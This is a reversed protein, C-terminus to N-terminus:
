YKVTLLCEFKMKEKYVRMMVEYLENKYDAPVIFSDHMCLCPIGKKNFYKLIESAIQSDINMLTIGYDSNIYRSIYPYKKTFETLMKEPSTNYCNFLEVLREWNQYETYKNRFAALTARISNSNLAILILLKMADRLESNDYLQYPDEKLEIGSKNMLINIHLSSYDLECVKQNNILIHKRLHSKINQYDAGYFRGGCNISGRNFVRYLNGDLSNYLLVKDDFRSLLAAAEGEKGEERGKNGTQYDLVLNDLLYEDTGIVKLEENSLGNYLHYPLLIKTEKILDNYEKLEREMRKTSKLPRYGCSDKIIVSRAPYLKKSDSPVEIIPKVPGDSVSMLSTLSKIQEHRIATFESDLNESVILRSCEGTKLARDYYGNKINIIGTEALADAVTVMNAYKYHDFGWVKRMVNYHNKDRSVALPLDKKWANMLNFIINHLAAEKERLNKNKLKNRIENWIDELLSIFSDSMAGPMKRFNIFHAPSYEKNVNNMLTKLTHTLHPSIRVTSVARVSEAIM